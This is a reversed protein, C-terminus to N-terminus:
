GHQLWAACYTLGVALAIAISWELWRPMAPM